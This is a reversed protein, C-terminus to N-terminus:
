AAARRARDRPKRRMQAVSEADLAAVADRHQRQVGGIRQFHLEGAAPDAGHEQREVGPRVTGSSCNM